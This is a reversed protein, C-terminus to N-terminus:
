IRDFVQAAIKAKNSQLHGILEWRISTAVLPRKAAAEQVRNEGIATLGYRAAYEAASAPHTKTVALLTVSNQPRGALSTAEAMEARVRDARVVFEEYPIM